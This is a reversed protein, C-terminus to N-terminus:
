PYPTPNPTPTPTPTPTPPLTPRLTVEFAALSGTVAVNVECHLWIDLPEKAPARAEAASKPLPPPHLQM